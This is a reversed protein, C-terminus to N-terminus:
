PLRHRRTLTDDSQRRLIQQSSWMSRCGWVGASEAKLFRVYLEKGLKHLGGLLM